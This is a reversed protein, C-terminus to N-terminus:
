VFNNRHEALYSLTLTFASAMCLGQVVRLGAFTGLDPAAALLATPISLVGLSAAIGLRRDIRRSFFAVTDDLLQVGYRTCAARGAAVARDRARLTDIWFLVGVAVAVLAVVDWM